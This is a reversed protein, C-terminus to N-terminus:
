FGGDGNCAVLQALAMARGDPDRTIGEFYHVVRLELGLHLLEQPRLRFRGSGPGGVDEVNTMLHTEYILHGAPALAEILTPFLRRDLFRAVMILDFSDAELRLDDLDECRWNVSVGLKEATQRGRELAVSSVDIADVTFGQEALYLSNRGAGCAVDLARGAPTCSAWHKLLETPHTRAVYEGKAYRDNWHEGDQTAM